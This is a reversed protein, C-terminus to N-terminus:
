TCNIMWKTGFKDVLMGFLPSWFTKELPMTVTGGASLKSFVGGANNQTMEISILSNSDDPRGARDPSADMICVRGYPSTLMGHLVKNEWGPPAFEVAPTGGFRVIDLEGGLADRYFELADEATGAFALYPTLPMDLTREASLGSELLM